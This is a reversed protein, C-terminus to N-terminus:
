NVRRGRKKRGKEERISGSSPPPLSLILPSAGKLPPPEREDRSGPYCPGVFEMLWSPRDAAKELRKGCFRCSDRIM